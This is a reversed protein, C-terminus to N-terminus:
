VYNEEPFNCIAFPKHSSRQFDIGIGSSLTADKTNASAPMRWRVLAHVFTRWSTMMHTKASQLTSNTQYEAFRHDCIYCM